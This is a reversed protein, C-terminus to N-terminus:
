HEMVEYVKTSTVAPCQKAIETAEEIDKANIVIYGTIAELNMSLNTVNGNKSVDRGNGLGVQEVIRDGISKFWDMWPGMVEPTPQTFGITLLIFKKM